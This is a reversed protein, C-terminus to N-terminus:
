GNSVFITKPILLMLIESSFDFYKVFVSFSRIGVQLVNRHKPYAYAKQLCGREPLVQSHTAVAKAGLLHFDQNIKIEMQLTLFQTWSFYFSPVCCSSWVAQAMVSLRSQLDREKGESHM